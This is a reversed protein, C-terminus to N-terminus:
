DDLPEDGPPEYFGGWTTAARMAALMRIIATLLM